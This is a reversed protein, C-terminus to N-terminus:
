TVADVAGCGLGDPIVTPWQPSATIKLFRQTLLVAAVTIGTILGWWVGAAGSRMVFALWLALPMGIGWCAVGTLLLPVRTDQLGRLASSAVVQLGDTLQFLGAMQLLVTAGAIVEVQESYIAAIDGALAVMMTGSVVQVAIVLAFGSLGARRVARLDGRGAANGVRITTALAIGLPVMFALGAVNLAVQHSAAATEGFARVALGVASFLGSELLLSITLPLGTRLLKCIAALEIRRRAAGQGLGRYNGSFRLWLGFGIAQAWAGVSSAVGAGPAGLAPLGFAGYMLGYGIPAVVALGFLGFLMTPRTISLGESLGRCCYFLCLAPAAPAIAHFFTATDPSLPPQFGFAQAMAPAGWYVAAMLVAGLMAAIMLAHRFVAGVENRRGAGDLQAVAAPLASNMGIAAIHALGFIATGVSVTGLVHANVHGALLVDAMGMGMGALQGAVLPLALVATARLEHVV